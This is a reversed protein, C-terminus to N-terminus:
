ERRELIDRAVRYGSLVAGAVTGAYASETAEGAFFLTDDVSKSLEQAANAGGITAYSYAGLALSDRQWNFVAQDVLLARLSREDTALGRALNVIATQAIKDDSMISLAEARPGGSWGTLIPVDDLPWWTPFEAGPIHLFGGKTGREIWFPKSFRLVTKVVAGMRLRRIAQEKDTLVPSFVVHGSQGTRRQLVGLPLTVVLLDSDLSRRIGNELVEVTVRGAQWHVASALCLLRIEAGRAASILEEVVWDYGSTIRRISADSAAGVEMETKRLWQLSILRSDAANFGEVYEIAMTRDQPSLDDCCSDLFSAFSRDPGSDDRLRNLVKEWAASFDVHCANGDIFQWHRDPIESTTVGTAALLSSLEPTEGHLFEPGAEVPVPWASRVTHIRGGIRDRAELVTVKVGAALLRAAAALGAAGAGIIVAEDPKM